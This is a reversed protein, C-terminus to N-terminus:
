PHAPHHGVMRPDDRNGPQKTKIADDYVVFGKMTTTGDSYTVPKEKVEANATAAMGTACLAGLVITRM